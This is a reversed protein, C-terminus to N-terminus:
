LKMYETAITRHPMVMKGDFLKLSLLGTNKISTTGRSAIVRFHM